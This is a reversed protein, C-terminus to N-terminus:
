TRIKCYTRGSRMYWATFSQRLLLRTKIADGTVTAGTVADVTLSQAVVIAEPIRDIALTGIDPTEGHDDHVEISLIKGATDLTVDVSLEGHYAPATGVYTGAFGGASGAADPSESAAGCGALLTLTFVFLLLRATFRKM